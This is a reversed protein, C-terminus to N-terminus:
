NYKKWTCPKCFIEKWMIPTYPKNWKNKVFNFIYDHQDKTLFIGGCDNDVNILYFQEDIDQNELQENLIKSIELPVLRWEVSGHVKHNDLIKYEKDNVTLHYNAIGNEVEQVIESVEIKLGTVKYFPILDETLYNQIGGEGWLHEGDIHFYRNSVIKDLKKYYVVPVFNRELIDNKMKKKVFAKEEKTSYEYFNLKDLEKFIHLGNNSKIKLSSCSNLILVYLIVLGFIQKKSLIRLKM